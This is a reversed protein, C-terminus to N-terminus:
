DNLQWTKIIFLKDAVVGQARISRGVLPAIGQDVYDFSGERRLTFTEGTPTQLVYDLRESKSGLSVVKQRVVGEVSAARMEM